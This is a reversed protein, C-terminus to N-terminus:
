NFKEKLIRVQLRRRSTEIKGKLVEKSMQFKKVLPDASADELVKNEIRPWEDILCAERQKRYRIKNITSDIPYQKLCENARNMGQELIKDELGTAVKDNFSEKSSELWQNFEPTANINVCSNQELYKGFLGSKQAYLPLFTILKYGEKKCDQLIQENDIVNKVWDFNALIQKRLAGQDGSMYDFADNVEKERAETYKIKLLKILEPQVNRTLILEEKANQLNVGDISFQRISQKISEPIKENLCNYFSSIMYGDGVTFLSGSPSQDDNHPLSLCSEWTEDAEKRILEMNASVFSQYLQKTESEISQFSHYSVYMDAMEQTQEPPLRLLQAKEYAAKAIEDAFCNEESAENYCNIYSNRAITKDALQAYYQQIRALYEKDKQLESLYKDYSLRLHEKIHIDWKSVATSDTMVTCGEPQELSLQAKLDKSLQLADNGFCNLMGPLVPSSFDSSKFYTSKPSATEKSCDVVSKFISKGTESSYEQIWTKILSEKEFFRDQYYNKSVFAYHDSTVNKKTLDGDHRFISLAEAFNEQPATGGYGTPLKAGPKLNWKSRTVGKEDVYETLFFGTLDLYDQKHSRYFERSGRGQQFDLQHNIEHTVAQYFYGSDKGASTWLCGDNLLIWGQSYALGCAGAMDKGEFGEGKPIRQIEKLYSLTTHPTKLMRSLRWFAYIESDSWLYKELTHIKGNYEGAVKSSQSPSMNDASLMHNFRLYWLYHVYGFVADDKKYIKNYICPVDSCTSYDISEPDKLDGLQSGYTKLFNAQPVPLKSLDLHKWTGSVKPASNFKKELDKVEAKLTEVTFVDRLCQGQPASALAREVATEVAVNKEWRTILTDSKKQTCGAAAIVLLLLISNTKQM